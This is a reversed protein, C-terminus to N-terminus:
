VVSEMFTTLLTPNKQREPEMYASSEGTRAPIRQLTETLCATNGDPM